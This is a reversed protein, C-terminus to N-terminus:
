PVASPPASPPASPTSPTSGYVWDSITVSGSGQAKDVTLTYTTWAQHTSSNYNPAMGSYYYTATDTVTSKIQATGAGVITVVGTSANVSAVSTNLSSYTVTGNGTNTVTHTYNADGYVKTM